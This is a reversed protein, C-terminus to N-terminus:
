HPIEDLLSVTCFMYKLLGAFKASYGEDLPNNHALQYIDIVHLSISWM